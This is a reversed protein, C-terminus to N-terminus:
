RALIEKVTEVLDDTSVLGLHNVELGGAKNYILLQPIASVGVKEIFDGIGIYVPYTIRNKNVFATMENYAQDLSVGMFVVDSEPLGARAEILRPIEIECPPCWSAFINVVVVRGQEKAVMKTFSGGDIKPVDEVTLPTFEKAAVFSAGGAFLVGLACCFAIFTRRAIRKM